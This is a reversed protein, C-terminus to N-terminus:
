VHGHIYIDISNEWNKGGKGDERTDVLGYEVEVDRDRGQLYTWWYWKTSEM